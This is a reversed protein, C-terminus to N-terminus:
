SPNAYGVGAEHVGQAAVRSRDMPHPRKM